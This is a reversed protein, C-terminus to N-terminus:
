GNRTLLTGLWGLRWKRLNRMTCRVFTSIEVMAMMEVSLRLNWVNVQDQVVFGINTHPFLIAVNCILQHIM